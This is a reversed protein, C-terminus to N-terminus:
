YECPLWFEQLQDAGLSSVYDVLDSGASRLMALRYSKEETVTDSHNAAAIKFAVRCLLLRMSLFCFHLSSCGNVAPEDGTHSRQLYAPLSVLWEDLSSELRRTTRSMERYDPKLSYVCPLLDGLLRSLECLRIFTM